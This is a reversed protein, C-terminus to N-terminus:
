VLRSIKLYGGLNKLESALLHLISQRVTHYLFSKIWRALEDGLGADGM